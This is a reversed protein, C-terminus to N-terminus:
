TARRDLYLKAVMVGFGLAFMLLALSQAVGHVNPAFVGWGLLWLIMTIYSSGTTQYIGVSFVGMLFTYFGWTGVQTAQEGLIAGIWNGTSFDGILRDLTSTTWTVTTNTVIVGTSTLNESDAFAELVGYEITQPTTQQITGYYLGTSESYLFNIGSITCTVNAEHCAGTPDTINAILLHTLGAETESFQNSLSINFDAASVFSTTLILYIIFLMFVVIMFKGMRGYGNLQDGLKTLPSNNIKEELTAHKNKNKKQQRREKRNM